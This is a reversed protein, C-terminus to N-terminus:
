DDSATERMHLSPTYCLGILINEPSIFRAVTQGWPEVKVEHVFTQGSDQLEQVADKVAEPSQLEFELTANPEPIDKPWTDAGFCFQAAMSLSCVGFHNCGPIDSTFLYDDQNTLALNLQKEYLDTSERPNKTITAFGAISHIKM